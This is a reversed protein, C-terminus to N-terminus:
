DSLNLRSLRPDGVVQCIAHYQALAGFVAANSMIIVKQQVARYDTLNGPAETNSTHLDM